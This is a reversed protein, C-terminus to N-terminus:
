GDGNFSRPKGALLCVGKGQDKASVLRKDAVELLLDPTDGDAPYLAAGMSLSVTYLDNGRHVVMPSVAEYFTKVTSLDTCQRLLLFFEDGGYRALFDQSRINGMIRQAIMWLTADGAQHGFTDNIEKFDDVDIIAVCFPTNKKCQKKLTKNIMRRNYVGTLSDTRAITHAQQYRRILLYVILSIFLSIVIGRYRIKVLLEAANNWSTHPLIRMEWSLASFSADMMIADSDPAFEEGWLYTEDAGRTHKFLFSYRYENTLDGTGIQRLFEDFCYHVHLFGWVQNEIIIPLRSVLYCTGSGCFLPGDLIVKQEESTDITVIDEELLYPNSDITCSEDAPYREVIQGDQIVSAILLSPNYEMYADIYPKIVAATLLRGALLEEQIRQGLHLTFTEQSGMLLFINQRVTLLEIEAKEKNEEEISQQM